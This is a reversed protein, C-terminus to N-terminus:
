DELKIGKAKCFRQLMQLQTPAKCLKTVIEVSNVRGACLNLGARRQEEFDVGIIKCMARKTTEQSLNMWVGTSPYSSKVDIDLVWKVIKTFTGPHEKLVKNGMEEHILHAALTSIWGDLPVLHKDLEKEMKDSTGTLVYGKELLDFYFDDALKRGQSGYSQLESFGCQAPFTSRLDETKEDLLQAGINDFMNYVCYFVKEERQMHKHWDIGTSRVGKDGKLKGFGLEKYLIDGLAYSPEKNLHKRVARRVSMQDVWFFHGPSQVRHWRDCPDKSEGVGNADFIKAEGEKLNFFKFEDPISPDNFVYERPINRRDLAQMMKKTDYPLNWISLMDPKLVNHLINFIWQVADAEDAAEYIELDFHHHIKKDKFQKIKQDVERLIPVVEREYCQKVKEVFDISTGIYAKTIAQFVRDGCSVSIMNISNTGDVVDFEIDLHAVRYLSKLHPFKTMYQHKILVSSTIDTGFLYPNRNLTKVGGRGTKLKRQIDSALASQTCEYRRLNDLSEWVRKEKYKRQSERTVYYPRKFDKIFRLNPVQEKNKLHIIEKVVLLDSGPTNASQVFFSNKFEYGEIDDRKINKM